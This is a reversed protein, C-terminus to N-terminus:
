GEGDGSTAAIAARRMVDAIPKGWEDELLLWLWAASDVDPFANAIRFLTEPPPLRRGLEIDTMYQQSIRAQEALAKSAMPVSRRRRRIADGVKSMLGRTVNSSPTAAPRAHRSERGSLDGGTRVAGAPSAWGTRGTGGDRWRRM